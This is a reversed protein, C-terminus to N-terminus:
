CDSPLTRQRQGGCHLGAHIVVKAIKRVQEFCIGFLADAVLYPNIQWVAHNVGGCWVLGHLHGAIRIGQILEPANLPRAHWTTTPAVGDVRCAVAM